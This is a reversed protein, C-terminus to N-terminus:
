PASVDFGDAEFLDRAARSQLFTLFGDVEANETASRLPAMYYRIPRHLAKQITHLQRLGGRVHTKFLVGVTAPPSAALSRALLDMNKRTEIKHKVRDWLGAAELAEKAHRGFPATSPDGILITKVKDTALDSLNIRRLPSLRPGAVVLTNGWPSIVREPAVLGKRIAFAMWEHDASVFLDAELVGGHLGKALLGSSKCVHTFRVPKRTRYLNEAQTMTACTSNALALSLEGARADRFMGLVLLPCLLVIAACRSIIM